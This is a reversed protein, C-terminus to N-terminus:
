EPTPFIRRLRDAMRHHRMFTDHGREATKIRERDRSLYHRVTAVMTNPDAFTQLQSGPQFLETLAPAGNTLTFGGAALLHFIRQPVSDLNQVQTLNLNIKAANYIEPLAAYDAPGYYHLTAYDATVRSWFPDGFVATAIGAEGLARLCNERQRASILQGLGRFFRHRAAPARGLPDIGCQRALLDWHGAIDGDNCTHQMLDIIIRSMEHALELRRRETTNATAKQSLFDREAQQRTDHYSSMVFALDYQFDRRRPTREFDPGASFPLYRTPAHLPAIMATERRNFLFLRDEPRLLAPDIGDLANVANSDFSWVTYGCHARVCEEWIEPHFNIDLVPHCQE